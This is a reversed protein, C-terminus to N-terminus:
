ELIRNVIVGERGNTESEKLVQLQRGGTRYDRSMFAIVGIDVKRLQYELVRHPAARNTRTCRAQTSSLCTSVVIRGRREYDCLADTPEVFVRCAPRRLSLGIDRCLLKRRPSRLLARSRIDARHDSHGCPHLAARIVFLKSPNSDYDDFVCWAFLHSSPSCAHPSSPLSNM